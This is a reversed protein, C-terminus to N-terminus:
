QGDAEPGPQLALGLDHSGEQQCGEAELDTSASLCLALWMHLKLSDTAVIFFSISAM